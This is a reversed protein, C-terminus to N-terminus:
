EVRVFSLNNGRATYFMDFADAAVWGLEYYFTDDADKLELYRSAPTFPGAAGSPPSDGAFITWDSVEAEEGDYRSSWKGEAIIEISWKEDQTSRWEGALLARIQDVTMANADATDSAPAPAAPSGSPPVTVAADAPASPPQGGCAAICFAAAFMAILRM